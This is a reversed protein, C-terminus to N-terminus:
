RITRGGLRDLCALNKSRSSSSPGTEEFVNWFRLTEDAGASVVSTGDPSMEMNLVRATHGTLEKIKTMSPYKWLVLQNESYGHSSCLERQHKSWIISCVQSGTDISNLIAGSNTNWFKITRDATGGGSALLGRHFPCWALAKVAAKHQKLLLRPRYDSSNGEIRATSRNTAAADWLCLYNENGGSALCSGDDNWSLGCVEQTHARYTAVIPRAARVDSQLIKSDRGGSSLQQQTWALASVRSAHGQLTRVLQLSRGDYLQVSGTNLGVSIYQPQVTCWCVSTVYNNGDEVTVLHHIEGTTANWLYVSRALAVALINDKSWSILNLYYDDVIDPADLIRTPATPVKRLSAVTTPPRDISSCGGLKMTRLVDLSFPDPGNSTIKEAPRFSFLGVPEANENFREIPINYMSSAMQRKFEKQMPTELSPFKPDAPSSSSNSTDNERERKASRLAHRCLDMNLHRRSPIFRDGIDEIASAKSPTFYFPSAHDRRASFSRSASRLKTSASKAPTVYPTKSPTLHSRRPRPPTCPYVSSM